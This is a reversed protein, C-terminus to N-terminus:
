LGMGRRASEWTADLQQVYVSLERRGAQVRQSGFAFRIGTVEDGVSPEPGLLELLVYGRGTEVAAFGRAVLRVVGSLQTETM